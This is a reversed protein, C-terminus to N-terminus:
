FVQGEEQRIAMERVFRLIVPIYKDKLYLMQFAIDRWDFTRCESIKISQIYGSGRLFM